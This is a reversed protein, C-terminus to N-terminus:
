NRVKKAKQGTYQEWRDIIVAVYYPEGEKSFDGLIDAFLGVPKQTPHVRRLLEDRRDGERAM